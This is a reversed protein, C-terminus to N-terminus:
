FQQLMRNQARASAEVAHMSIFHRRPMKTWGYTINKPLSIKSLQKTAV